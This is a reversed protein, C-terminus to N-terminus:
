ACGPNASVEKEVIQLTASHDAAVALKVSQALKVCDVEAFAASSSLLGFAARLLAFRITMKM